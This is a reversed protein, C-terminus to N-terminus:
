SCSLRMTRLARLFVRSSVSMNQTIEELPQSQNLLSAEAFDKKTTVKCNIYVAGWYCEGVAGFRLM